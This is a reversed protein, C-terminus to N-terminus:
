KPVSQLAGDLMLFLSDFTGIAQKCNSSVCQKQFKMKIKTYDSSDISLMRKKEIDWKAKPIRRERKSVSCVEYGDGSAPLTIKPCIDPMDVLTSCGSFMFLMSAFLAFSKIM